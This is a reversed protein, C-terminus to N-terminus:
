SNARFVAKIQELNQRGVSNKSSPQKQTKTTCERTVSMLANQSHQYSFIINELETVRDNAAMLETHTSELTSLLSQYETTCRLLTKSVASENLLKQVEEIIQDQEETTRITLTGM